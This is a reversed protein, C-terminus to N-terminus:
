RTRPIRDLTHFAMIDGTTGIVTGIVTKTVTGIVTKTVTGIVPLTATETVVGSHEDTIALM